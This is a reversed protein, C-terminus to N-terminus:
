RRKVLKRGGNRLQFARVNVAGPTRHLVRAIKRASLGENWLKILQEEEDSSWPLNTRDPFKTPTSKNGAILRAEELSLGAAVLAAIKAEQPTLVGAEIAAILNKPNPMPAEKNTNPNPIM